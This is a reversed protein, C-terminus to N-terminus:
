YEKLYFIAGTNERVNRPSQPHLSSAPLIASANRGGRRKETIETEWGCMIVMGEKGHGDEKEMGGVM